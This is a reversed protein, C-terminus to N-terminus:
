RERVSESVRKQLPSLFYDIVRRKGTIIEATVQMGPMLPQERGDVLLTNRSMLLSMRYLLGGKERTTKEDQVADQSIHTVEATITGYRTFPFTQVKFVAQDGVQVFGIDKNPLWAEVELQAEQPVIVMLQQAELVVGGVTNVALDKVQGSVPAYLVQRSNIDSAQTLQQASSDVARQAEALRVLNEARTKATLADSNQVAEQLAAALQQDRVQAAALDQQQTIRTEELALYQDQAVLKREALAKYKEARQTNIPLTAQLKKILAKNVQWEARRNEQQSQLAARQALYQQWQQALLSQQVANLGQADDSTQQGQVLGQLHAQLIQERLLVARQEQLANAIRVRESDTITNDLEILKKGAAVFKGEHVYIAKVVGKAIPQIQQVRSSPIIKGEAVAVVDVKGFYSWLLTVIFLAMVTFILGRALPHPPTHQIELLAPLFEHQVAAFANDRQAAQWKNWLFKM